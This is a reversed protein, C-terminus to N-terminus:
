QLALKMVEPHCLKGYQECSNCEFFDPGEERPISEFGITKFFAPAKAVLYIAEGKVILVEEILKMMLEHGLRMNQFEADMAVGDVIYNGQRKALVAGGILTHEEGVTVAWCKVIETPVLEQVGTELGEKKFLEVLSKHDKTEKITFKIM